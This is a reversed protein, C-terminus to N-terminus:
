VLPKIKHFVGTKRMDEWNDLLETKHQEAWEKVLSLVRNPLDGDIIKLTEIEVSAIKDNYSAHFHPPNHEKYYM